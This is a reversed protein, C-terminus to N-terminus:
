KNTCFYKQKREKRKKCNGESCLEYSGGSIILKGGEVVFVALKNRADAYIKQVTTRAVNMQVACEEQTLNIYDILRITEFEEVSMVVDQKVEQNPEDSSYFKRCIPVECVRRAKPKRPM